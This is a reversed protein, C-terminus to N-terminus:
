DLCERSHNSIHATNPAHRVPHRHPPPQGPVLCGPPRGAGLFQTAQEGPVGGVQFRGVFLGNDPQVRDLPHPLVLPFPRVLGEGKDSVDDSNVAQGRHDVVSRLDPYRGDHYFGGKEHSVLGSLPATRYMKTPSRNAQFDDIGMEEPTHM